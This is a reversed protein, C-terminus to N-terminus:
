DTDIVLLLEVFASEGDAHRRVDNGAALPLWWDEEVIISGPSAAPKEAKQKVVTTALKKGTTAPRAPDQALLPSAAFTALM